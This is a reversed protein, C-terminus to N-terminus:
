YNVGHHVGHEGMRSAFIDPHYPEKPPIYNFRYGHMPEPRYVPQPPPPTHHTIVQTNTRGWGWYRNGWIDIRDPVFVHNNIAHEKILRRADRFNLSRQHIESRFPEPYRGDETHDAVVDIVNEVM